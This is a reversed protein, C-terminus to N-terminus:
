IHFSIMCVSLTATCLDTQFGLLKCARWRFVCLVSMAEHLSDRGGGLIQVIDFLFRSYFCTQIKKKKLVQKGDVTLAESNTIRLLLDSFPISDYAESIDKLCWSVSARFELCGSRPQILHYFAIPILFICM